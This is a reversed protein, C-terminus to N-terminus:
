YHPPKEEEASYPTVQAQAAEMRGALALLQNHLGELEVRLSNVMDSLETNAQELYAIKFELQELRESVEQGQM